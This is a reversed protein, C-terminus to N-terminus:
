APEPRISPPQARDHPEASRVPLKLLFSSGTGLESELRVSGGHMMALRRAIALGLGTGRRRARRDGGQRYEDFIAEREEPRIGPGTDRVRVTAYYADSSLQVVVEGRPTFKVANGVLNGLIQRVRRGDAYAVVRDSLREVRLEVPKDGRLGAAEKLVEDVIPALEVEARSLRLQGSAIASLELIDNILALLHLGSQKIIAVEERSEGHLPGDVESQLIDAFGLIANLPSRLEHSVTALFTARERDIEEIRALADAYTKEAAAFREVLGDFAIALEGVEDLAPVPVVDQARDTSERGRAAIEQIRRALDGVDLRVDRSVAFAVATAVGTLLASLTALAAVLQQGGDPTGPVETVAIVTLGAGEVAHASFRIAGRSTALEGSRERLVRAIPLEITVAGTQAEEVVNTRADVLWLSAGARRSARDVLDHRVEPAARSLRAALTASVLEARAAASAESQLSLQRLGLIAFLVALAFGFAVVAIPAPPVLPWTRRRAGLLEREPAAPPWSSFPANPPPTSATTRDETRTSTSSVRGPRSASTM